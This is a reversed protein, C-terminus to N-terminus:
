EILKLKHYHGRRDVPDERLWDNYDMQSWQRIHESYDDPKKPIWFITPEKIRRCTKSHVLITKDAEDGIVPIVVRLIDCRHIYQVRGVTRGETSYVAVKDGVEFKTM